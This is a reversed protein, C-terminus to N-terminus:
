NELKELASTTELNRGRSLLATTPGTAVHKFGVLFPQYRYDARYRRRLLRNHVEMALTTKGMGLPGVVSM